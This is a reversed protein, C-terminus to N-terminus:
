VRGARNWIAAAVLGIFGYGLGMSVLSILNLRIGDDVWPQELRLLAFVVGFACGWAAWTRLSARKSRM